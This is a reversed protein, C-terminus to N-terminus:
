DKKKIIVFGKSVEGDVTIKCERMEFYKELDTAKPTASYGISSYIERLCEKIDSKKFKKGVQFTNLIKSTLSDELESNSENKAMEQDIFGERYSYRACKEPGFMCYILSYKVPIRKFLRVLGETSLTTTCILKLKDPFTSLKDFETVIRNIEELENSGIKDLADFVSFRNRYDIQQVDFTRKDAIRVLTNVVPVMTDGGRVNVSVYNSKYNKLRAMDLFERALRPKDGDSARSWSNILAMTTAMKEQIIEEAEKESININKLFRIYLEARNKWPNEDLRQRGLIQPLDLTIDVSLCDINADSFIFSRACTSYFDAGLYVTRTCLTFMKHPEGRTPVKGIVSIRRKTLGLAKKLKRSNEATNSCLINTNDLTLGTKRIIDCINKVSNVYIVAEKSEVLHPCFSHDFYLGKEFIGSKYEEIVRCAESVISKCDFVELQPKTARSIESSVWDLEYYPLDKFEDLDDLYEELMPTASVFCLRQIDSITSMFEIETGGKFKADTFIAQFEDVVIHFNSIYEGLAEKVLRFSDYTVLIKCPKSSNFSEIYYSLVQNELGVIFKAPDDVIEEPSDDDVLVKTTTLDKDINVGKELENRVYLVEPHQEEKNELLIKRPSCLIVNENNTLCFETFGCGTLKKDIICKFDPLSFEKWESIYRIGKPVIIKEKKM